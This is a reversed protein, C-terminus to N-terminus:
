SGARGVQEGDQGTPGTDGPLGPLGQLDFCWILLQDTLLVYWM